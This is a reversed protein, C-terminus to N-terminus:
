KCIVPGTATHLITQPGRKQGAVKKTLPISRHQSPSQKQTGPAQAAVSSSSVSFLFALVATASLFRLAVQKRSM